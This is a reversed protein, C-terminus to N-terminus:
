VFKCADTNRRRCGSCRRKSFSTFATVTSKLFCGACFTPVLDLTTDVWPERCTQGERHELRPIYLMDCDRSFKPSAPCHMQLHLLLHQHHAAGALAHKGTVLHHVQAKGEQFWESATRLNLDFIEYVVGCGVGGAPWM